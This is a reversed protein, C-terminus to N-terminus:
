CVTNKAHTTNEYTAYKYGLSVDLIFTKAFTTLPQFNNVAKIKSTKRPEPSVKKFSKSRSDDRM